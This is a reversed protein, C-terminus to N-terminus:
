YLTREMALLMEAFKHKAVEDVDDGFVNRCIALLSYLKDVVDKDDDVLGLFDDIVIDDRRPIAYTEIINQMEDERELYSENDYGWVDDAIDYKLKFNNGDLWFNIDIIGDDTNSYGCRLYIPILDNTNYDFEDKSEFDEDNLSSFVIKDVEDEDDENGDVIKITIDDIADNAVESNISALSAIAMKAGDMYAKFEAGNEDYGYKDFADSVISNHLRALLKLKEENM